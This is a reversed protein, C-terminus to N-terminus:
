MSHLLFWSTSCYILMLVPYFHILVFYLSIFYSRLYAYVYGNFFALFSNGTPSEQYVPVPTVLSHPEYQKELNKDFLFYKNTMRLILLLTQFLISLLSGRM